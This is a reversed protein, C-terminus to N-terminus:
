LEVYNEDINIVALYRSDLEHLKYQILNKLSDPTYKAENPIVIDFILNTRNPGAIIRFDHMSLAPDIQKIIEIVQKKLENTTTDDTTVPDMHIVLHLNDDSVEREITDILEHSQMVDVKSDVEAHVTAFYKNPGYNHIVLDHIALVGEYKLIRQVISNVIEKDPKEGLLPNLTGIILRIGGYLIFLAVALGAYADLNFGTYRYVLSTILIVTTTIVDNLSDQAVGKLTISDLLKGMRRNYLAMCLKAFISGGLVILLINNPDFSEPATMKKISSIVLEVGLACIIFSIILACLYEMRAHGFPHKKDAPKNAIKFGLLSGGSSASDTLNNLGDALVALSSFLLGVTIKAASLLINASIGITSAIMGYINRVKPNNYDKYDKTFLKAITKSM